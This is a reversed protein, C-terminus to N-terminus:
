RTVGQIVPRIGSGDFPEPNGEWNFDNIRFNLSGIQLVPNYRLYANYTRRSYELVYDTSIDEESELNFSTQVGARIPGYIQQTLGLSITKRDVFRDFFFPSESGRIGQSYRVNFGTYDLFPRSFHGLQGQLGVSARLSPQSDGNGYISTVGTLGTNFRLFPKVPVPTYRLGEERTPPLAEGQWLYFGKNLSVAGQLRMLTTLDDGNEGVLDDRDTEAEINQLGVQYTLNIGTDGLAISPSVFVVGLSSQVTQFGLSGNFLRERYNYEVNLLYPRNLDGIQRRFQVRARLKDEIAPLELSPLDSTAIISNRPSLLAAFDTKFGIVSPNFVGGDEDQPTSNEVTFSDPFFAKQLLYQPTVAFNVKPTNILEFTRQVFLGGREEGDFGFQVIGPNRDREDITLTDRLIPIATNQDLVVRSNSTKLEGVEPSIQSYTATDARLELEPPSFPDSTFRVDEAVWGETDFDIQTAQYRLQSISGGGGVSPLGGQTGLLNFDRVSGLVFQYGSRGTVRRLPQNTALRDGLSLDPVNEASEDNALNPQLDRSINPQYIEGGANRIRGSDNFFNYEFREGRLIQDGRTLIVEGEAVAFRDELNIKVREATLLGRPFRVEVNGRATIVQRQQDYEQQDAIVEIVSIERNESTESTEQATLPWKYSCAKRLSEQFCLQEEEITTALFLREVQLKELIKARKAVEINEGQRPFTQLSVPSELSIQAFLFTSFM